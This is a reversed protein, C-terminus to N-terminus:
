PWTVEFMLPWNKGTLLWVNRVADYAIGNPVDIAQGAKQAAAQAQRTLDTVDIWATVKGSQPDIRAIRNTLWINAYIFSAGYELENLNVVGAGGATVRLKKLVAFTKPDRWTLTDSGNSMILSRDDHTLGWGEGQYRRQGQSRLTLPDYLYLTEEQWTLQYAVGGFVSVGESFVNPNPPRRRLSVEGTQPSVRRLSSQGVLGTSELLAGGYFELGETFADQAHPIRALVRPTLVPIGSAPSSAAAPAPAPAATPVPTPVTTPATTLVAALGAAPVAALACAPLLFRCLLLRRFM